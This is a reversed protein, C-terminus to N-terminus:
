AKGGADVIFEALLEDVGVAVLMARAEEPQGNEIFSTALTTNASNLFNHNSNNFSCPHLKRVVICNDIIRRNKQPICFNKRKPKGIKTANVIISKNFLIKALTKIGRNEM